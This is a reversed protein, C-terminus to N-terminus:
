CDPLKGTLLNKSLDMFQLAHLNCWCDPLDGNLQNNSLDLVRISLLRCLQHPIDGFFNNNSLRLDVLEGFDGLQPPISSNFRNSSIDLVDLKNCGELHPFTGVFGNRALHLSELSCNRSAKVVPIEGSFSNNSLDLFRLAELNLWCDPLERNPFLGTPNLM